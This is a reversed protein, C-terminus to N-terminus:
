DTEIGFAAGATRCVVVRVVERRYEASGRFDSVPTIEAAAIAGAEDLLAATMAKGELFQEAARARVPMPVSAGISIAVGHYANGSRRAAVGVGLLPRHEAPTRLYRTYLGVHDDPAPPVRIETVVDAPGLATLYYDLFFDRLAITREGDTGWVVVEADLALLCTPPDTSPDAYCLNGGITATNRIQPNAIRGAMAALMPYHAQIAPHDAVDAHRALAGIRLGRHADYEIRNLGSIGGLSVVSSPTLMRQRMALLLATGGAYLRTDEGESVLMRSAEAVSDPELFEFDRM